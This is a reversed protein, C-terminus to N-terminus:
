QSYIIAQFNVIHTSQKLILSILYNKAGNSLYTNSIKTYRSASNNVWKFLQWREDGMESDWLANCVFLGGNIITKVGGDIDYCLAVTDANDAYVQREM